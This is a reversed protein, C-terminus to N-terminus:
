TGNLEELELDDIDVGPVLVGFIALEATDGRDDVHAVACEGQFDPHAPHMFLHRCPDAAPNTAVLLWTAGTAENTAARGGPLEEWAANSPLEFDRWPM